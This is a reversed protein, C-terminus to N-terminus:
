AQAGILRWMGGDKLALVVQQAQAANTSVIPLPAMHNVCLATQFPTTTPFAFRITKTNNTNTPGAFGVVSWNTTATYTAFRIVSRKSEIVPSFSLPRAEPASLEAARVVNAIREASELTFQTPDRPSAM